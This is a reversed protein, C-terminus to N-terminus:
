GAVEKPWGFIRVLVVAGCRVAGCRVMDAVCPQNRTACTSDGYTRRADYIHSLSVFSVALFSVYKYGFYSYEKM